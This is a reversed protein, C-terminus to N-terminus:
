AVDDLKDRPPLRRIEMAAVLCDVSLLWRAILRDLLGLRKLLRSLKRTSADSERALSRGVEVARAVKALFYEGDLNSLSIKRLARNLMEMGHTIAEPEDMWAAVVEQSAEDDLNIHALATQTHRGRLFDAFKRERLSPEFKYGRLDWGDREFFVPKGDAGYLAEVEVDYGHETKLYRVRNLLGSPRHNPANAPSM